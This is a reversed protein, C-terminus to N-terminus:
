MSDHLGCRVQLPFGIIGKLRTCCDSLRISLSLLSSDVDDFMVSQLVHHIDGVNVEITPVGSQAEDVDFKWNVASIFNPSTFQSSSKYVQNGYQIGVIQNYIEWGPTVITQGQGGLNLLQSAGFVSFAAVIGVLIIAAVLKGRSKTTM